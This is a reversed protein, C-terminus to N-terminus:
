SKVSIPDQPNEVAFAGAFNADVYCDVRKDATPAMIGKDQTEKLYHLIRKVAIANSQRPARSFRAAQHVSFAINQRTNAASYMKMSIVTRYQWSEAFPTGDLESRRVPTNAELTPLCAM